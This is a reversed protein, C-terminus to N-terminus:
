RNRETDIQPKLKSQRRASATEMDEQLCPKDGEYRVEAYAPATFLLMMGALLLKKM